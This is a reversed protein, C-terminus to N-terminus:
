TFRRYVEDGVSGEGLMGTMVGEGLRALATGTASSGPNDLGCTDDLPGDGSIITVIRIIM